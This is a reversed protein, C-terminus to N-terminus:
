RPRICWSKIDGFLTEVNDTNGNQVYGALVMAYMDSLVKPPLNRRYCHRLIRESQAPSGSDICLKIAKICTKPSIALRIHSTSGTLGEISDMGDESSATAISCCILDATLQPDQMKESAELGILLLQENMKNPFKDYSILAKCCRHATSWYSESETRAVRASMGLLSKWVASSVFYEQRTMYDLINMINDLYPGLVIKSGDRKYKPWVSANLLFKNLGKSDANNEKAV